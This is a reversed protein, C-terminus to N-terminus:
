KKVVQIKYSGLEDVKYAQPNAYKRAEGLSMGMIDAIEELAKEEAEAMDEAIVPTWDNGNNEDEHTVIYLNKM